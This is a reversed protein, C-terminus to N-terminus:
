INSNEPENEAGQMGAFTMRTVAPKDESDANTDFKFKESAERSRDKSETSARYGSLQVKTSGFRTSEQDAWQPPDKMYSFRLMRTLAGIRGAKPYQKRIRLYRPRQYVLYNLFGQLPDFFSHIATLVFVSNGGNAFQLLRNSTSWVHTLYFTGMYYLAQHYVELTRKYDSRYRIRSSKWTDVLARVSSRSGASLAMKKGRSSASTPTASGERSNLRRPPMPNRGNSLNSKETDDLPTREPISPMGVESGSDDGGDPARIGHEDIKELNQVIGEGINHEPAENKDDDSVALEGSNEFTVSKENGCTSTNPTSEPVQTNLYSFRKEPNRYMASTKDISRVYFFVMVTFVATTSLFSHTLQNQM